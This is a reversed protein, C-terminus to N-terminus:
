PLRPSWTAAIEDAREDDELVERTFREAQEKRSEAQEYSWPKKQRPNESKQPHYIKVLPSM